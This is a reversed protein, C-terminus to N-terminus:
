KVKTFGRSIRRSMDFPINLMGEVCCAKEKLNDKISDSEGDIGRSVVLCLNQQSPIALTFAVGAARTDRNTDLAPSSHSKGTEANPFQLLVDRYNRSIEQVQSGGPLLPDFGPGFEGTMRELLTPPPMDTHLNMVVTGHTPHLLHRLATLFHGGRSWFCYPVEDNGDFADIFVLDYRHTPNGMRQVTRFLDYVYAVGDAEFTSIREQLSGWLFHRQSKPEIMTEVGELSYPSDCSNHLSITAVSRVSTGVSCEPFGMFETAASIVTRDIDVVEVFCGPMKNVLFLPLSGGGLGICLTQMQKKGEAVLELDLGACSVTALGISVMSKLYEFALCTPIQLLHVNDQEQVLIM